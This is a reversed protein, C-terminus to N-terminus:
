LNAGTLLTRIKKAEAGLIQVGMGGKGRKTNRSKKSLLHRSAASKAMIKGSGTVKFRKKTGKHTKLKPM